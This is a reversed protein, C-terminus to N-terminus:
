AERPRDWLPRFEGAQRPPTAQRTDDSFARRRRSVSGGDRFDTWHNKGIKALFVVDSRASDSVDAKM